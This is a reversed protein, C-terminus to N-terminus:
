KLSRYAVRDAFFSGLWVETGVRMAIATGTFAPTAPGRAIETVVMTRPDITFAVYGRPCRIGAETKPPGGCSPENDVLGATILKGDATWRM